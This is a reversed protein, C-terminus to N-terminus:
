SEANHVKRFVLIRNGYKRYYIWDGNCNAVIQELADFGSRRIPLLSRGAFDMLYAGESDFNIIIRDQGLPFTSVLGLVKNLRDEDVSPSLDISAIPVDSRVEADFIDIDRFIPTGYAYFPHGSGNTVTTRPLALAGRISAALDDQRLLLKRAPLPKLTESLNTFYVTGRAVYTLAPRGSAGLDFEMIEIDGARITADGAAQSAALALDSLPVTRIAGDVDIITVQPHGEVCSIVLAYRQPYPPLLFRKICSSDGLKGSLDLAWSVQGTKNTLRELRGDWRLIFTEEPAGPWAYRVTAERQPTPLSKPYLKGPALKSLSIEDIPAGDNGVVFVADTTLYAYQFPNSYEIEIPKLGLLTDSALAVVEAFSLRDLAQEDQEAEADLRLRQLLARMRGFFAPHTASNALIPFPNDFIEDALFDVAYGLHDAIRELPSPEDLFSTSIPEPIGASARSEPSAYLKKLASIAFDDAAIERAYSRKQGEWGFWERGHGLQRHGIEHALVFFAQVRLASVVKETLEDISKAFVKTSGFGFYSSEVFLIDSSSMYAANGRSVIQAGEGVTADVVYINLRGAQHRQNIAIGIDASKSTMLATFFRRLAIEEVPDLARLRKEAVLNNALDITRDRGSFFVFGMLGIIILLVLWRLSTM